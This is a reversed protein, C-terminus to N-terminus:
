VKFSELVNEPFLEEVDLRRHCVGQEFAYLLFAELTTRNPEVGYPWYEDDFMDFSQGAFHPGWPLPFRSATMEFMRDVSRQRAEDFAKYLNMLAWPHDEAISSKVATTHMIPFIGTDAFYQAEIEQYNPLLRVIQEGGAEFLEPPHASMIADVERNLLMEQLSSDPRPTLKVGDPLNLAVKEKRGAQNVGAQFWEIDKLPVGAHHTIAGRSYIAATQAWEPVGVKRGALDELKSLLSDNRVFISSQRFVRSPFVPLATLSRDGQSKLSVYKGFSMESVDWERHHIFRYFVEEVQFNLFNVEIGEATVRGNAFDRVHDYESMAITLALKSTDKEQM